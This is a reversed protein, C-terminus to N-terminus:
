RSLTLNGSKKGCDWIRDYGLSKAMEWETLTKNITPDIKMMKNKSLGRKHIRLQHKHVYYQMPPVTGCQFFGLTKYLGGNSYRNDSFSTITRPSYQRKFHTLLKSAGGVVRGATAFRVLEYEDKNAPSFSMVAVIKNDFLLGFNVPLKTPAGILHYQDYFQIADNRNLKVVTCKRAFTTSDNIGLKSKILNEVISKKYLWEDSYITLLQIDKKNAAEFKRHHYNWSKGGSIDSHWYLGCYEIGIKMEPIFIDIEYPNLVSRDGSIAVHALNLNKIFEFVSLEEKSKYSVDSPHCVLCRPLSAYDFIKKFQHGCVVCSFNVFPRSQVGIYEEKSILADLEFNERIMQIFRSYNKKAITHSTYKEIKTKKMKAIFQKSMMPNVVGYKKFNTINARERVVSFKMANDVGYKNLMTTKQLLTQKAVKAPDLYFNKHATRTASTQGVNEVGHRLLNTKKRRENIEKQQENTLNDHHESIKEGISKKACACVTARGCFAYGEGFSVFRKKLKPVECLNTKLDNVVVYARETLGTASSLNATQEMLWTILNKNHKIRNSLQKAPTVQILEQLKTKMNDIVM